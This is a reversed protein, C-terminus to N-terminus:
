NSEHNDMCPCTSIIIDNKKTEGKKKSLIQKLNIIRM